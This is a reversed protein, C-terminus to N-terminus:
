IVDENSIDFGHHRLTKILGVRLGITPVFYMATRALEVDLISSPIDMIRSETPVTAIQQGILREMLNLVEQLSYGKDSAINIVSPKGM